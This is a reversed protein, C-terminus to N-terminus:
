EIVFKWGKWDFASRINALVAERESDSVAIERGAAQWVRIDGRRVIITPKDVVLQEVFVEITKDTEVYVITNRGRVEVSFGDSSVILNPRPYSFGNAMAPM